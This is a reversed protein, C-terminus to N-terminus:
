EAEPGVDTVADLGHLAVAVILQAGQAHGLGQQVIGAVHLGAHRQGAHVEEIGVEEAVGRAIGLLQVRLVAKEQLARPLRQLMRSVLAPSRFLTTYPFLTSRPPRRIM